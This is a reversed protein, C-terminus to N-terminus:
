VSWELLVIMPSHVLNEKEQLISHIFIFNTGTVMGPVWPGEIPPPYISVCRKRVCSLSAPCDAGGRCHKGYRQKPKPKSRAVQDAYDGGHKPVRRVPSGLDPVSLKCLGDTCLYEKVCGM